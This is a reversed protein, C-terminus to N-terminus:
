IKVWEFITAKETKSIDLYVEIPSLAAVKLYIILINPKTQEMVTTHKHLGYINLINQCNPQYKLTLIHRFDSFINNKWNKSDM